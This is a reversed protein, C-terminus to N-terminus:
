PIFICKEIRYFMRNKQEPSNLLFSQRKQPCALMGRGPMGRNRYHHIVPTFIKMSRINDYRLTDLGGFPVPPASPATHVLLFTNELATKEDPIGSGSLGPWDSTQPCEESTRV